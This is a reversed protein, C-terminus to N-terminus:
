WKLTTETFLNPNNVVWNLVLSQMNPPLPYGGVYVVNMVIEIEQGAPFTVGNSLTAANKLKLVKNQIM